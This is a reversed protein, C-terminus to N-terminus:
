ADMVPTPVSLAQTDLRNHNHKFSQAAFFDPCVSKNPRVTIERETHAYCLTQVPYIHEHTSFDKVGWKWMDWISLARMM